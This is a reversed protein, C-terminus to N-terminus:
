DALALAELLSRERKLDLPCVVAIPQGDGEIVVVKKELVHDLISAPDYLAELESMYIRDQVM